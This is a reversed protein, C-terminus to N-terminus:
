NGHLQKKNAKRSILNSIIFCLSVFLWGYPKINNPNIVILILNTTAFLLLFVILYKQYQIAKELDKIPSPLMPIFWLVVSALIMVYININSTVTFNSYSLLYLSILLLGISAIRFLTKTRMNTKMININNGKYLFLCFVKIKTNQKCM